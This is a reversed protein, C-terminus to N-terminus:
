QEPALAASIIQWFLGGGDDRGYDILIPLQGNPSNGVAAWSALDGSRRLDLEYGYQPHVDIRWIGPLVQMLQPQPGAYHHSGYPFAGLDEHERGADRARSAETLYFTDASRAWFGANGEIPADGLWAWNRNYTWNGDTNDLFSETLNHTISIEQAALEDLGNESPNDFTGIEYAGGEACINNYVEFQHLNRSRLDISGTPGSWHGFAGNNVFTNNHIAVNRRPGDSVWISAFLGSGRNDYFLNHHIHVRELEALNGESSIAMGWECDHVINSHFEVDHLLGFYADVYLGQRPMGHVYNHHVIGYASVEKIDIGEKYCDFVHNYAIEFNTAGGTSIAEHPGVSGSGYLRMAGNNAGTVSCDMVTVRDANWIGIGCAFTNITTVQLIEVDHSPGRVNIGMLHANRITLNEIRIYHPGWITIAGLDHLFPPGEGADPFEYGDADIIATEGPYGAFTIWRTATGSNAPELRETIAYVGERFYVTDGERATAFAKAPTAWPASQRGSNTDDGLPPPAVFRTAASLSSAALLLVLLGRM